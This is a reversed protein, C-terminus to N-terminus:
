INELFNTQVLIKSIVFTIKVLSVLIPWPSSTDCEDSSSM